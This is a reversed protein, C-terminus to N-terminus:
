QPQAFEVNVGKTALLEKIAPMAARARHGHDFGQNAYFALTSLVFMACSQTMMEAVVEQQEAPSVDATASKAKFQFVNDTM